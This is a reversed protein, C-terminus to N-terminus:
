RFVTRGQPIGNVEIFHAPPFGWHLLHSRMVFAEVARRNPEAPYADMAYVAALQVDLEDLRRRWEDRSVEGRRVARLWDGPEGAIPLQLRGTTVLEIGQFGLRAAHMAFKTDFGHQEVIERRGSGRVPNQGRELKLLQARMYGRHKPIIHRGIFAQALRRLEHGPETEYMVPAWLVLLVSPNGTLALHVFKRLSYIQRDTDGPGSRVGEPRTRQMAGPRPHFFVEPMSELAVVIEDHDEHGELGTGHATSGVEVQLITNVPLAQITM